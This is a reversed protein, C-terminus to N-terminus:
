AILQVSLSERPLCTRMVMGYVAGHLERFAIVPDESSPANALIWTHHELPLELLTGAYLGERCVVGNEIGYFLTRQNALSIYLHYHEPMGSTDREAASILKWTISDTANQPLLDKFCQYEIVNAMIGSKPAGNRTEQPAKFHYFVARRKQKEISGTIIAQRVLSTLVTHEPLAPNKTAELAAVIERLALPRLCGEVVPRVMDIWYKDRVPVPATILLTQKQQGTRNRHRGPKKVLRKWGCYKRESLYALGLENIFWKKNLKQIMRQDKPVRYMPGNRATKFSDLASDFEFQFDAIHWLQFECVRQTLVPKTLGDKHQALVILITEPLTLVRINQHMVVCDIAKRIPPYDPRCNAVAPISDPLAFDVPPRTESVHVYPTLEVRPAYLLADFDFAPLAISELEPEPEPEPVELIVCHSEIKIQLTNKAICLLILQHLDWGRKGSFDSIVQPFQDRPYMFLALLCACANPACTLGEQQPVRIKRFTYAPVTALNLAYARKFQLDTTFRLLPEPVDPLNLGDGWYCCLTQHDFVVWYYHREHFLITVFYRRTLSAQGIKGIYRLGRRRREETCNPELYSFMETPFVTVNDVSSEFLRLFKTLVATPVMDRKWWLEAEERSMTTSVPEGRMFAQWFEREPLALVGSIGRAQDQENLGLFFNAAIGSQTMRVTKELACILRGPRVEFVRLNARTYTNPRM